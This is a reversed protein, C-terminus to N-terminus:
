AIVSLKQGAAFSVVSHLFVDSTIFTKSTSATSSYCAWWCESAARESVSM